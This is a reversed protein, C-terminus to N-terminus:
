MRATIGFTVTRGTYTTSVLDHSGSGYRQDVIPDKGSNLIDVANVFVTFHPNITYRLQGDLSGYAQEVIREGYSGFGVAQRDRWSYALSGEIGYKQYTLAGNLIAKPANLFDGEAIGDIGADANSHQFTANAYVGLGGLAGPLERFQRVINAEM